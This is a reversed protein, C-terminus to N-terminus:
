QVGNGAAGTADGSADSESAPSADPAAGAATTTSEKASQERTQQEAMEMARDEASFLPGQAEIFEGVRQLVSKKKRPALAVDLAGIYISETRVRKGERWTRQRYLYRRKKITKVVDYSMPRPYPPSRKVRLILM